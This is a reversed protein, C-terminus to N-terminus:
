AGRGGFPRSVLARSDRVDLRRFRDDHGRRALALGIHSHDMCRGFRGDWIMPWVCNNQRQREQERKFRADELAVVREECYEIETPTTYINKCDDVFEPWSTCGSLAFITVYIVNRM